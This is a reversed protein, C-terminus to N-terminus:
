RLMSKRSNFPKVTQMKKREKYGVANLFGHPTKPYEYFCSCSGQLPKTNFSLGDFLSRLEQRRIPRHIHGPGQTGSGQTKPGKTKLGQAHTEPGQSDVALAPSVVWFLEETLSSSPDITENEGSGPRDSNERQRVLPSDLRVSPYSELIPRPGATIEQCPVSYGSQNCPTCFNSVEELSPRATELAMACIPLPRRAKAHM